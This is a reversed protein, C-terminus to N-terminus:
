AGLILILNELIRIEMQLEFKIVALLVTLYQGQLIQNVENKLFYRGFAGTEVAVM